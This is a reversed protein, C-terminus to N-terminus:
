ITSTLAQTGGATITIETDVDYDANYLAKVKNHIAERLVRVGPMPAYQNHGIHMAKSAM